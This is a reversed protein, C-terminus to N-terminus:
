KFETFFDEDLKYYTGTIHNFYYRNFRSLSKFNNFPSTLIFDPDDQSEIILNDPESYITVPHEPNMLTSLLLTETAFTWCPELDGPLYNMETYFKQHGTASAKQIIREKKSLQATYRQSAHPITVLFYVPIFAAAILYKSGAPLLGPLLILPMLSIATFTYFAIELVNDGGWNFSYALFPLGLGAICVALYYSLYLYQKQKVLMYSFSVLFILGPLLQILGTTRLYIYSSFTRFNRIHLLGSLLNNRFEHEYSSTFSTKLVTLGAVLLFYVIPKPYSLHAPRQIIVAILFAFLFPLIISHSFLTFFLLAAATLWYVVPHLKIAEPSIIFAALLCLLSLSLPVESVPYFFGLSVGCTNILVIAWGAHPLKLIYTIICYFLYPIAIFSVSYSIMLMQLPFHLYVGALPLVQTFINAYRLHPTIFKKMQIIEYLYVASDLRLIRERYYIVSLILLFIFYLHPIYKYRNGM